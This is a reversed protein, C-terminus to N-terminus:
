TLCKVPHVDLESNGKGLANGNGWEMTCWPFHVVRTMAVEGVQIV